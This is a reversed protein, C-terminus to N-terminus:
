QTTTWATAQELTTGKPFLIAVIEGKYLINDKAHEWVQWAGNIKAATVCGEMGISAYFEDGVITGAVNVPAPEKLDTCGSYFQGFVHNEDYIRPATENPLYLDMPWNYGNRKQNVRREALEELAISPKETSLDATNWESPGARLTGGKPQPIHIKGDSGLYAIGKAPDDRGVVLVHRKETPHEYQWWLDCGALQSADYGPRTDNYGAVPKLNAPDAIWENGVKTLQLEVTGDTLSCASDVVAPTPDDIIAPTAVLAEIAAPEEVAPAATAPTSEAIRNRIAFLGICGFIIVALAIAGAIWFNRRRDPNDQSFWGFDDDSQDDKQDRLNDFM